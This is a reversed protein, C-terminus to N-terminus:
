SFAYEDSIVLVFTLRLTVNQLEVTVKKVPAWNTSFLGRYVLQFNWLFIQYVIHVFTHLRTTVDFNYRSPFTPTYKQRLFLFCSNLFEHIERSDSSSIFEVERDEHHM